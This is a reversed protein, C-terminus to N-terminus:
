FICRTSFNFVTQQQKTELPLDFCQNQKTISRKASRWTVLKLKM